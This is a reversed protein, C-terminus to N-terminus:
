KRGSPKMVGGTLVGAAGEVPLDRGPSLQRCFRAPFAPVRANGIGAAPDGVSRDHHLARHLGGVAATSIDPGTRRASGPVAPVPRCVGTQIRPQGDAQVRGPKGPFGEEGPPCVTRLRTAAAAQATHAGKGLWGCLYGGFLFLHGCLKKGPRSAM